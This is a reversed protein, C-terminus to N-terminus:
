GSTIMESLCYANGIQLNRRNDEKFDATADGAQPICSKANGLDTFTLTKVM